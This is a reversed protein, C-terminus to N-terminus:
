WEDRHDQETGVVKDQGDVKDGAACEANGM